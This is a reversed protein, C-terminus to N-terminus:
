RYSEAAAEYHGITALLYSRYNWAQYHSPYRNIVRDCINLEVRYRDAQEHSVHNARANTIEIVQGSVM